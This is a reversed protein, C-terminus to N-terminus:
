NAERLLMTAGKVPYGANEVAERSDEKDDDSHTLKGSLRIVIGPRRFPM